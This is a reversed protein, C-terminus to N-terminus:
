VTGAEKALDRVNLVRRTLSSNWSAVRFCRVSRLRDTLTYTQGLNLGVAHRASVGQWISPRNSHM